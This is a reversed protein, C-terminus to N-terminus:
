APSALSALNALAAAMVKVCPAASAAWPRTLSQDGYDVGSVDEGSGVTVPLNNPTTSTFGDPDTEVVTYDGPPVDPFSYDGNSDTTTCAVQAAGQLLCVTVGPIPPEGDNIGNGNEDNWINGSISGLAQDFFDQDVVNEGPGVDAVITNDNAGDVDGTSIYGDPDTEEM